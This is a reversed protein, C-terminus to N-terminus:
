QLVTVVKRKVHALNRKRQGDQSESDGRDIRLNVTTRSLFQLQTRILLFVSELWWALDLFHTLSMQGFCVAGQVLHLCGFCRVCMDPTKGQTDAASSKSCCSTCNPIHSQSRRPKMSRFHAQNQNSFVTEDHPRGHEGPM